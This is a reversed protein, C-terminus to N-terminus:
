SSECCRGRIPNTGKWPHDADPPSWLGSVDWFTFGLLHLLPPFPSPCHAPHKRQLASPPSFNRKERERGKLNNNLLVSFPLSRGWQEGSSAWAALLSNSSGPSTVDVLFSPCSGGLTCTVMQMDVNVYLVNIVSWLVSCVCYARMLVSM